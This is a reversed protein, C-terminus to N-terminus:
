LLIEFTILRSKSLVCMCKNQIFTEFSIKFFSNNLIRRTSEIDQCGQHCELSFRWGYNYVFVPGMNNKTNKVNFRNNYRLTHSHVKGYERM